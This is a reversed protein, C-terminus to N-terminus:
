ETAVDRKMLVNANKLGDSVANNIEEESFGERARLMTVTLSLDWMLDSRFGSTIVSGEIVEIM